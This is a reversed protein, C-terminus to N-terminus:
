HEIKIQQPLNNSCNKMFQSFVSLKVANVALTINNDTNNNIFRTINMIFFFKPGVNFINKNIKSELWNGYNIDLWDVILSSRNNLSMLSSGAQEASCDCIRYNVNDFNTPSESCKNITFNCCCQIHSHIICYCKL